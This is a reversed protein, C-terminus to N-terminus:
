IPPTIGADDNIVVEFVHGECARYYKWKEPTWRRITTFIGKASRFILLILKGNPLPYFGDEDAFETDYTIFDPSLELRETLLAQLLKVPEGNTVEAFLMKAYRHSFKIPKMDNNLNSQM